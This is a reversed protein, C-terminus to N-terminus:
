LVEMKGPKYIDLKDAKYQKIYDMCMDDKGKLMEVTKITSYTVNSLEVLFSDLGASAMMAVFISSVLPREPLGYSINDLGCITKVDPFQDKILRLTKITTLPNDTDVSVPLVLPDLFVDEDKIGLERTRKLIKDAVKVRETPKNAIGEEGMLLGVVKANYKKVLPLIKNLRENEGSVSNVLPRGYNNNHKKLCEKFVEQNPTDISIPIEFESQITEIMWAIDEVETKIRQGANIDIMEAGLDLQHKTIELLRKKDKNEIIDIIEEHESTNIQAGIIIM